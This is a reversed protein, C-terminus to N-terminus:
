ADAHASAIVALYAEDNLIALGAFVLFKAFFPFAQEVNLARQLDQYRLDHIQRVGRM